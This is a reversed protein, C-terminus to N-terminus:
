SIDNIERKTLSHRWSNTKDVSFQRDIYDLARQQDEKSVFRGKERFSEYWMYAGANGGLSHAPVEWFNLM